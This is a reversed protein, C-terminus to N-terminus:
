SVSVPPQDFFDAIKRWINLNGGDIFIVM